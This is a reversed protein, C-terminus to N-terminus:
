IPVYCMVQDPAHARSSVATTIDLAKGTEEGEETWQPGSIARPSRYGSDALPSARRQGGSLGRLMALMGCVAQLPPM